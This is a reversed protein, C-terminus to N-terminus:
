PRRGLPLILSRYAARTAPKRAIDFEGGGRGNFFVALETRAHTRLFDAIRRVFGPDDIRQIGWEPIAFPKGPFDKYIAEIGSLLGTNSDLKYVDAGVVDVYADGPYYARPRNGPVNPNSYGHPNWVMRVRARGNTELPTLVPPLGLRTLAANATPGGRLVIAIRAFAKKFWATSYAPPRPSGNVNFACYTHWHGNMEAMPRIYVRVGLAAIERNIEVLWADGRGQAVAQPSLERPNMGLMPMPLLAGLINRVPGQDWGAIVHKVPHTEAPFVPGRNGYVGLYPRAASAAPALVLAAVAVALVRRGM